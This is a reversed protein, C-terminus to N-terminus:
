QELNKFNISWMVLILFLWIHSHWRLDIMNEITIIFYRIIMQKSMRELWFISHIDTDWLFMLCNHCFLVSDFTESKAKM